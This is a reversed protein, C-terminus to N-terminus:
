VYAEEADLMYWLLLGLLLSIRLVFKYREQDMRVSRRIWYSYAAIFIRHFYFFHFFFSFRIFRRAPRTPASSRETDLSVNRDVTIILLNYRAFISMSSRELQMHMAARDAKAASPLQIPTECASLEAPFM